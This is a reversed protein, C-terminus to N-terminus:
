RSLNNVLQTLNKNIQNLVHLLEVRYIGNNQMKEVEALINLDDESIQLTQGGTANQPIQQQAEDDEDDEDDEDAEEEKQAIEENQKKIIDEKKQEFEKKLLELEVENSSTETKQIPVPKKVFRSIKSKLDENGKLTDAM